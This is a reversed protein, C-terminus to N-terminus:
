TGVLTGVTEGVFFGVDDGVTSGVVRGVNFGIGPMYESYVSIVETNMGLVVTLAMLVVSERYVNVRVM